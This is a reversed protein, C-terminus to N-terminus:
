TSRNRNVGSGAPRTSAAASGSGLPNAVSVPLSHTGAVYTKEGSLAKEVDPFRRGLLREMDGGEFPKLFEVAAEQRLIWNIADIIEWRKTVILGYPRGNTDTHHTVMDPAMDLQDELHRRREQVERFEYSEQTSMIFNDLIQCDTCRESGCGLKRIYFQSIDSTMRGLISQLYNEILWRFFFKCHESDLAINREKLIRVLSPVVPVLINTYKTEIEENDKILSLFLQQLLPIQNASVLTEALENVRSANIYISDHPSHSYYRYHIGGPPKRKWKKVALYFSVYVLNQVDEPKAALEGGEDQLAKAFEFFFKYTDNSDSYMRLQPMISSILRNPM